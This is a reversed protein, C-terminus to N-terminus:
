AIKLATFLIQEAGPTFNLGSVGILIAGQGGTAIPVSASQVVQDSFIVHAFTGSSNELTLQQGSTAVLNFNVLVMEGAEKLSLAALLESARQATDEGLYIALSGTQLSADIAIPKYTSRILQDTDLTLDTSVPQLKDATRNLAQIVLASADMSSTNLVQSSIETTNYLQFGSM